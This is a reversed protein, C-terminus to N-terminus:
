AGAAKKLEYTWDVDRGDESDASEYVGPNETVDYRVDGDVTDFVLATYTVFTHTMAWPNEPPGGPEHALKEGIGRCWGESIAYAVWRASVRTHDPAGGDPDDGFLSIGASPWPEHEYGPTDPNVLRREASEPDIVISGDELTEFSGPAAVLLTYRSETEKDALKRVRLMEIAM